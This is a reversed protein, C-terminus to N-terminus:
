KRSFVTFMGCRCGMKSTCKPYPLEPFNRIKFKRGNMKRCAACSDDSNICSFEVGKIFGNLDTDNLQNMRRLHSGYFLLMRAATDADFRVGTEYGVPLWPSTKNTGLLCIMGAALRLPGLIEESIGNLIAPTKEFIATLELVDEDSGYHNWDMGLGRPFVQSSEFAGVARFAKKYQRNNLLSLLEQELRNKKDAQATLYASAYLVGASSCKYMGSEAVIKKMGDPDSEILRNVLLTKNGSVKLGKTRLIDKLESINFRLNLGSEVDLPELLEEDLFRKLSVGPQEKLVPGWYDANIYHDLTSGILFKSLLLLHAPSIRWSSTSITRTPLVASPSNIQASEMKKKQSFLDFLWM